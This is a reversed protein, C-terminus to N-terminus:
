TSSISTTLVHFNRLLAMVDRGDARCRPDPELLSLCLHDLCPELEPCLTSPPLPRRYLKDFLLQEHSGDFPLQGTLLQYLIVGVAYWDTAETLPAGQQQEPSMYLDTGAIPRASQLDSQEARSTVLGFDLIVLRGARDLMINSPKLDRHIFGSAHLATLGQVLQALANCLPALGPRHEVASSRELRSHRRAQAPGEARVSAVCPLPSRTIRESTTPRQESGPRLAALLPQGEILEMVLYPSSGNLHLADIRVLNPHRVLQRCGHEQKLSLVHAENQRTVRKIALRAGTGIERAEYVVGFGGWGIQRLLQYRNDLIYKDHISDFQAETDLASVGAQVNM